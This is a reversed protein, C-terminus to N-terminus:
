SSKKLANKVHSLRGFLEQAENKFRQDWFPDVEAM